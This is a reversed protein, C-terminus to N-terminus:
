RDRKRTPDAADIELPGETRGHIFQQVLENKSNQLEEPTGVFEVRGQYLFTIRDAIYYASNMDHTVVLQTVGLEKQLRRVLENIVQSM